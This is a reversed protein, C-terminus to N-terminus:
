FLGQQATTEEKVVPVLTGQIEARERWVSRTTEGLQEWTPKVTPCAEYMSQAVRELREREM